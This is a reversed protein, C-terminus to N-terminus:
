SRDYILLNVTGKNSKGYLADIRLMLSLEVSLILVFLFRFGFNTSSKSPIWLKHAGSPGYSFISAATSAHVCASGGSCPPERVVDAGLQHFRRQM